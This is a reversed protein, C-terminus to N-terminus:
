PPINPYQINVVILLWTFHLNVIIIMKKEVQSKGLHGNIATSHPPPEGLNNAPNKIEIQFKELHGSVAALHLPPGYSKLNVKKTEIRSDCGRLEEEHNATGIKM